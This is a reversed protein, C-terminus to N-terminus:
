LNDTVDQHILQEHTLTETSVMDNCSTKSSNLAKLSFNGSNTLNQSKHVSTKGFGAFIQMRIIKIKKTIQYYASTLIIIKRQKQSLNRFINRDDFYSEPAIQVLTERM